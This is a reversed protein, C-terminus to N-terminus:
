LAKTRKEVAAWCAKTENAASEDPVLADIYRDMDMNVQATVIAPMGETYDYIALQLLLVIGEPEREQGANKLLLPYFNEVCHSDQNVKMLRTLLTEVSPLTIITENSM